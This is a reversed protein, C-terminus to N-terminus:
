GSSFAAAFDVRFAGDGALFVLGAFRALALLGLLRSTRLRASLTALLLLLVSLGHSSCLRIAPSTTGGVGLGRPARASAYDHSPQTVFPNRNPLIKHYLSPDRQRHSNPFTIPLCASQSVTASSQHANALTAPTIEKSFAM